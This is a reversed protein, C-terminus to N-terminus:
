CQSLVAALKAEARRKTNAWCQLWHQRLLATLIPKCNVAAMKCRQKYNIRKCKTGFHLGYLALFVKYVLLFDVFVTRCLILFLLLFAYIYTYRCTLACWPIVPQLFKIELILLIQDFIMKYKEKLKRQQM